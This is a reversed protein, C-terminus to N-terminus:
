TAFAEDFLKQIVGHAPETLPKEKQLLAIREAFEPLIDPRVDKMYLLTKAFLIRANVSLPFDLCQQLNGDIIEREGSLGQSKNKDMSNCSVALMQELRLLYVAFQTGDPVMYNPTCPLSTIGPQKGLLVRLQHALQRIATTPTTMPFSEVIQGLCQSDTTRVLRLQVTWVDTAALLHTVVVYDSKLECRQAMEVAGTDDWPKASLLFGGRPRAVWPIFAQTRATTLFEIEEVLFIPLARSMRGPPDALQEEVHDPQNPTEATSGLFSVVPADNSKAPYLSATPTNTKLWVPGTGVLLEIGIDSETTPKGQAIRAKAIENDWYSLNERWDPRKFAYLQDLVKRAQELRGLDLNAKILNNGVQMGHVKPDFEPEALQLIEALYGANGLDGSMQMLLDAPAPKSAIALSERYLALAQDLHQAKLEARALWTKARWSGPIAAICRLAEQGSEEGNKERHIVEYWGLGNDQNPDLELAHWLTTLTNEEDGREAQVKALNTLVIGSEGNRSIYHRLVRESDDLRGVKLYVISLLVASRETDEELQQLREAPKVMEEFFQDHLSHTIFGALKDADNWNQEINGLLVNDRWQQRTIFLERGYADFVRIMNPDDAPNMTPVQMQQEPISKSTKGGFLKKLINM